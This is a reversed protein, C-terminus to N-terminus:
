EDFIRAIKQEMEGPLAEGSKKDIVHVEFDGYETVYVTITGPTLTISNAFTTISVDSSLKSKFRIIRPDIIQMMRPHFVLKMVHINAKFVELLLWPIYLAFRPWNTSIKGLDFNSFALDASMYSVILCSVVGLALHFTDFKGSLLIWTIFLLIFTLFFAGNIKGPKPSTKSSQKSKDSINPKNQSPLEQKPM